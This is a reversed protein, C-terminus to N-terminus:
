KGIENKRFGISIRPTPSLAGSISHFIGEEGYTLGNARLIVADGETVRWRNQLPGSREQSTEFIAEGQISAVLVVGKYKPGDRHPTIYSNQDYRQISSGTASWGSLELFEKGEQRVLKEFQNQLVDVQEKVRPSIQKPKFYSEAVGSKHREEFLVYALSACAVQLDLVTEETLLKPVLVAGSRAAERIEGSLSQQTFYNSRETM